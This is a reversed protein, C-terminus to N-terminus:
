EPKSVSWEYYLYWNRSLKKYFIAPRNIQIGDLSGTLSGNIETSSYVYGKETVATEASDIESSDSSAKFFVVGPVDEKQGIGGNLSLDRFLSRYENWRRKSFKLEEEPWPKDEHLYIYPPWDHDNKLCVYSIGVDLATSDETAMKVLQNFRDEHDFFNKSLVSDSAHSSSLDAFVVGVSLASLAVLLWIIKRRM